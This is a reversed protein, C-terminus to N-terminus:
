DIKAGSKRVIDGWKKQEKKVFAAFQEPSGAVCTAGQTALTAQIKPVTCARQMEANLRAVLAKPLGAPAIMATWTTIEYGPVGAQAM